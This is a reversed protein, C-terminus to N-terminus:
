SIKKNIIEKLKVFLESNFDGGVLVELMNYLIEMYVEYLDPNKRIVKIIKRQIEPTYVDEEGNVILMNMSIEEISKMTFSLSIAPDKSNEALELYKVALFEHESM